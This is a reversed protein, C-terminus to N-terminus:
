ERYHGAQSAADRSGDSRCSHSHLDGKLPIREYLDEYLSYVVFSDIVRDESILQILHEGEGVFEFDFSLAGGEASVELTKYESPEYYNEDTNVSVIKLTFVEGDPIMYAREAATITMRSVKDAIIVSPWVNYNFTTPLM